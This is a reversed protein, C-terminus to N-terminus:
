EVTIETKVSNAIFCEEHAAHHLREIEDPGPQKEGGYTIKPHLKVHSSRFLM